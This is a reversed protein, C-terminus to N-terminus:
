DNILQKRISALKGKVSYDEIRDRFVLKMGGILSADVLFVCNDLLYMGALRSQVKAKEADSLEQATYVILDYDM